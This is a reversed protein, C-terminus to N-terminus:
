HHPIRNLPCAFNRRQTLDSNKLLIPSLRSTAGSTPFPLDPAVKGNQPAAAFWCQIAWALWECPTM